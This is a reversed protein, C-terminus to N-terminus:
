ACGLDAALLDAMAILADGDEQSLAGDAIKQNVEDIFDQIQSCASDVNGKDLSRLANKLPKLLGKAQGTKLTDDNVLSDLEDLLLHIRGEATLPTVDATVDMGYSLALPIDFDADEATSSASTLHTVKVSDIGSDPKLEVVVFYLRPTGHQVQVDAAGNAFAITQVGNTLALLDTTDVLFDEGQQFSGAGGGGSDDRYIRLTEILANAATDDLPQNATDEFLIEFTVLEVDHDGSRGQHSATVALVETQEGPVITAPASAATPLAFQGGRNEWWAIENAVGAAGLVDGDGDGDVDAAHVSRVRDFAGDVTHKTWATGDGATNEWWAMEDAVFAAGLVDVDGDGDVDAAHVSYAGDFAGDVTHKTWATGDGATNEWWAIDAANAAAGLVDGDVDAAHVSYAADFAGDVTHETWATGNGATNEWWAIEHADFQAAGLVDVDGDGDVDAAHVSYASDFDGDVTHETPFPVDAAGLSGAFFGSTLITVAVASLGSKM